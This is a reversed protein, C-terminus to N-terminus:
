KRPSPKSPNKRPPLKAMDERAKEGMTKNGHAKRLAANASSARVKARQKEGYSTKRGSSASPKSDGVTAAADLAEKGFLRDFVSHAM